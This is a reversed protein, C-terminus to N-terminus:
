EYQRDIDIGHPLRRRTAREGEKYGDSHGERHGERREVPLWHEYSGRDHLTVEMRLPQTGNLFHEFESELAYPFCKAMIGEVLQRAMERKALELLDARPYRRNFRDDTVNIHAVLTVPEPRKPVLCLVQDVNQKKTPRM